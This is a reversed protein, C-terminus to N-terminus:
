AEPQINFIISGGGALADSAGATLTIKLNGEAPVILNAETSSLVQAEPVGPNAIADLSVAASDLPNSGDNDLELVPNNTATGARGVWVSLIRAKYPFNVGFVFSDNNALAPFTVSVTQKSGTELKGGLGLKDLRDVLQNLSNGVRTNSSALFESIESFLNAM